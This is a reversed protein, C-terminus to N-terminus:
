RTQGLPSSFLENKRVSSLLIGKLWASKLQSHYAFIANKKAGEADQSLALRHWSRDFTLLHRPPMLYLNPDYKRPRPYVIEFHVLYEYRVVPSARADLIDDTLRGITYHDPNADRRDPYVIIDPRFQQVQTELATRLAAGGERALTADPFDLFVVGSEPVGLIGTAKIFEAHRIAGQGHRNGDTVLVIRVEAGAERAAAIYGGAGITEDDPHPSIVLVREAAGPIAIAPLSDVASQALVSPVEQHYFFGTLVLVVAVPALWLRKMSKLCNKARITRDRTDTQLFPM